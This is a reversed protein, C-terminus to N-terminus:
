KWPVFFQGRWGPPLVRDGKSVDLDQAPYTDRGKPYVGGPDAPLRIVLVSLRPGLSPSTRSGRRTM